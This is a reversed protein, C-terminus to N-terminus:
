RARATPVAGRVRTGRGPRSEIVVDGGIAEIRDRMNKLGRGPRGNASFGAGDDNVEFRLLGPSQHLAIAASATPAHKMTNQVAEACTFYIASELEVPLRTVGEVTVTIPVPAHRALSKLADALGRDTLLSPYVGHALSRLEDLALEAEFGLERVARIGAAPDEQLKDEALGLKIRLSVLRQQAGDHLDRELRARGLDAAEAIRRRSEELESMAATLDAMTREHRWAAVVVGSVGDLLEPDDRLAVDHILAAVEREGDAITTIARGPPPPRPLAVPSGNAERWVRSEVDRFLLEISPDKMATALADRVRQPSAGARLAASLTGLADALLMRRRILGVVFTACIAVICATWVSSVAIVTDTAGGLQRFTIHGIHSVGWVAGAIFVPGMARQQLPSAARWRRFMSAFLGLWLLEVLWERVLILDALFAPQEDLVFVANAPCDTTCSSWLTKAPFAEVLPATGFFLVLLVGLFGAFVVRDLGKAIRGDPFALLLYVVCPFVLWTALRGITYPVSHSTEALATLSWLFGIALLAVGFRASTPSRLAYIGGAIPTAVILFELLGRGFAADSSSGAASVVVAGVCLVAGLLALGALSAPSPTIREGAARASARSRPRLVQLLDITAM